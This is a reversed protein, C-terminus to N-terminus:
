SNPLAANQEGQINDTLFSFCKNNLIIVLDNEQKYIGESVDLISQSLNPPATTIQDDAIKSVAVVDDVLISYLQDNNEFVVGYKKTSDDIKKDGLILSFNLAIVTRGRLNLIGEVIPPCLPVSTIEDPKFVDEVFSAEIAILDDKVKTILYYKGNIIINNKTDM